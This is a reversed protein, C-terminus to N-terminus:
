SGGIPKQGAGETNLEKIPKTKKKGKKKKINMGNDHGKEPGKLETCSERHTTAKQKKKGGRTQIQTSLRKGEERKPQSVLKGPFV